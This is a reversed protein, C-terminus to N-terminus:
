RINTGDPPINFTKAVQDYPMAKLEEATYGEYTTIGNIGRGGAVSGPILVYRYEIGALQSVPRVGPAAAGPDYTFTINGVSLIYGYNQDNFAESYPLQMVNPLITAGGVTFNRGYCLILGQDLITQTVGPAARNYVMEVNYENPPIYGPVWDAEVTAVWTSYTVTTTGQPGPPGPPGPNGAPGQIGAVGAPGEPGEKTCAIAIFLISLLLAYPLKLKRMFFHKPLSYLKKKFTFPFVPKVLVPQFGYL